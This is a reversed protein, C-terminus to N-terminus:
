EIDTKIKAIINNAADEIGEIWAAPGNRGIKISKNLIDKIENKTLIPIVEVEVFGVEPADVQPNIDKWRLTYVGVYQVPETSNGKKIEVIRYMVKLIKPWKKLPLSLWM